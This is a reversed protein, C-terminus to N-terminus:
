PRGDSVYKAGGIVLRGDVIEYHTGFLRLGGPAFAVVAAARAVEAFIRATEGKKRSRFLLEDGHAALLDSIKFADKYDGDDPGGRRLISEIENGIAIPLLGALLDGSNGFTLPM